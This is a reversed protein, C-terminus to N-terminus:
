ARDSQMVERELRCETFVKRGGSANRDLRGAHILHAHTQYADMVPSASAPPGPAPATQNAAAAHRVVLALALLLYRVM